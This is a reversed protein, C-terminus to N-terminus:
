KVSRITKPRAALQRHYIQHMEHDVKEGSLKNKLLCIILASCTGLLWHWNVAPVPINRRKTQEWFAVLCYPVKAPLPCM